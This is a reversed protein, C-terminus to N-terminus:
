VEYMIIIVVVEPGFAAPYLIGTPTNVLIPELEQTRIWVCSARSSSLFMAALLWRVRSESDYVKTKM